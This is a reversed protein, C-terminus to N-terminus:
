WRCGAGRDLLEEGHQLRALQGDGATVRTQQAQGPFEHGIGGALEGQADRQAALEIDGFLDDGAGASQASRM